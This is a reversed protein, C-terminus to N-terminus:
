EFDMLLEEGEKIPKAACVVVRRAALPSTEMVVRRRSSPSLFDSQVCTFLACNASRVAEVETESKGESTRTETPPAPRIMDIVPVLSPVVALDPSSEMLESLDDPASPECNWPLLLARQMVTRYALALADISPCLYPAHGCRKVYHRLMTHTLELEGAVRAAAAKLEDEAVGRLSPCSSAHTPSFLSPLSPYVADSLFPQLPSALIGGRTHASSQHFCALFCALWLSHATVPGLRGRRTLFRMAKRLPPLAPPLMDGRLTQGNMVSQYPVTILPAGHPVAEGACLGVPTASHPIRHMTLKKSVVGQVACAEWFFNLDSPSGKSM